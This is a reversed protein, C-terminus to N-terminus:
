SATNAIPKIGSARISLNQEVIAQCFTLDAQANGLGLTAILGPQEQGVIDFFLTLYFRTLAGTLFELEFNQAGYFPVGM